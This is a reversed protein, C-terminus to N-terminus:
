KKDIFKEKIKEFPIQIISFLVLGIIGVIITLEILIFWGIYYSTLETGYFWLYISVINILIFVIGSISM